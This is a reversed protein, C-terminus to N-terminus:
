LVDFNKTKSLFDLMKIIMKFKQFLNKNQIEIKLNGLSYINKIKMIINIMLLCIRKIKFLKFIIKTIIKVIKVSFVIEMMRDWEM